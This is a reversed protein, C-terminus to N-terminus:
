ALRAVLAVDNASTDRPGQRLFDLAEGTHDCYGCRLGARPPTRPAPALPLACAPCVLAGRALVQAGAGLLRRQAGVASGGSRGLKVDPEGRDGPDPALEFAM